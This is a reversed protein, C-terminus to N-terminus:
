RLSAWLDHELFGDDRIFRARRAHFLEFGSISENPDLSTNPGACIVGSLANLRLGSRTEVVYLMPGGSMGGFNYNPPPIGEGLSPEAYEREFQSIVDRENVAHAIGSGTVAGFV